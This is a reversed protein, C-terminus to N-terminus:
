VQIVLMISHQKDPPISKYDGDQLFLKVGCNVNKGWLFEGKVIKKCERSVKKMSELSLQGVIFLLIVTNVSKATLIAGQL